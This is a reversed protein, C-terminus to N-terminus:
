FKATKEALEEVRELSAVNKEEGKKNNVYFNFFIRLEGHGVWFQVNFQFKWIKWPRLVLYIQTNYPFKKSRLHPLSLFRQIRPDFKLGNGEWALRFLKKKKICDIEFPWYSLNRHVSKPLWSLWINRPWLIGM